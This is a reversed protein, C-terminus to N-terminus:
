HSGAAFWPWDHRMFRVYHTRVAHRDYFRQLATDHEDALWFVQAADVDDALDYVAKLLMEGVGQGRVSSTVFLDQLYLIPGGSWAFPTLSTHALGVGQGKDNRAILGLLGSRQECLLRWTRANTEATVMGSLHQQWEQFLRLWDSHDNPIIRTIAIPSM